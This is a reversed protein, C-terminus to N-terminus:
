DLCVKAHWVLIFCRQEDKCCCVKSNHSLNYQSYLGMTSFHLTCAKVKSGWCDIIHLAIAMM